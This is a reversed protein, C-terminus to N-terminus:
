YCSAAIRAARAADIFQRWDGAEPNPNLVHRAEEVEGKIALIGPRNLINTLVDMQSIFRPFFALAGKRNAPPIDDTTGILVACPLSVSHGRRLAPFLELARVESVRCTRNATIRGFACGALSQMRAAMAGTDSAPQPLFAGYAVKWVFASEDVAEDPVPTPFNDLCANELADIIVSRDDSVEILAFQM